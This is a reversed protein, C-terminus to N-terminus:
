CKVAASRGKGMLWFACTRRALHCTYSLYQWGGKAVSAAHMRWAESYDGSDLYQASTDHYAAARKGSMGRRVERPARAFVYEVVTVANRLAELSREKSASGATDSLRFTEREVFCVKKGAMLLQFAIVTWEYYKVLGDFLGAPITASRYLGGCSALWNRTLLSRLPDRQAARVDPIVAEGHANWGNSVAFDAGSSELAQIRSELADELYVDDDDLFAFYDSGVAQRGRLIAGPLSPETLRILNLPASQLQQLLGPDWRNGNVVVIIEASGHRQARVSEIARWLSEARRKEATTPIIVSVSM